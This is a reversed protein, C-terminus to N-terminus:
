KLNWDTHIGAIPYVTQILWYYDIPIVFFTSGVGFQFGFNFFKEPTLDIRYFEWDVGLSFLSTPGISVHVNADEFTYSLKPGIPEVSIGLQLGYTSCVLCLLVVLMFLKKM